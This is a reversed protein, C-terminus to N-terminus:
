RQFPYVTGLRLVQSLEELAVRSESVLLPDALDKLELRDRYHKNVWDVLIKYTADTLVVQANVHELEEESLVVRLRLCAPGGGNQMSQRLDFYKVESISTAGSSLLGALYRKVTANEECEHPAVLCMKGNPLTILQSNFLYSKVADDLGVQKHSVEILELEGGCVAKFRARLEKMVSGSDVFAMEHFFLVNQNGVAVVDNHFAGSDICRPNQQAFFVQVEELQHLRAIAESAELTQRAPFREPTAQARTDLAKRGYVFFHLGLEEYNRCFRTHNAAGEDGLTDSSPLAEHVSFYEEDQFIARLLRYTTTAEIARHFKQNLNAVTLHVKGDRSDRSPSVTAANATWMSSASACAALLEPQKKLAKELVQSDSGTFGIARLVRLDPREQPPIIGQRFGLDALAKAKALGQLAAEKPNSVLSRHSMSAINGYSLGAYCHTMGVLGDFNMEFTSM